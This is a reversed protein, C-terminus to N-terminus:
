IFHLATLTVASFIVWARFTEKRRLISWVACLCGFALSCILWASQLRRPTFGFCDIYLWLKSAAIVAFLLSEALLVLSINKLGKHTWVTERSLRTIFWLLAFNVAMLKCLEFFGQRAYRSLTYGTPLHRTFAGLLYPTHLAFFVAYLACFVAALGVWVATPVGHIAGLFDDVGRVHAAKDEFKIRGTGAIMGFLWAGVPLSFLFTGIFADFGDWHFTLSRLLDSFAIRFHTDAKALLQFAIAFIGVALVIAFASWVITEPKARKRKPRLQLLGYFLCRIRLFFYAFPTILFGFLADAPLLRGTRGEFLAGSRSLVWWAFALHLFLMSQGSNWVTSRQTLAGIEILVLCGLWIWSEAPRPKKWHLAETMCIMLLTFVAIWVGGAEEGDFTHFFIRDVYLYAAFYMALATWIERRSASFARREPLGDFPSPVAPKNENM